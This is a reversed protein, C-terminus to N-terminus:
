RGSGRLSLTVSITADANRGATMQDIVIGDRAEIEGLWRLLPMPRVAGIQVMVRGDGSTEMRETTLGAESARRSVLEVLPVAQSPRGRQEASRIEGTMVRVDGLAQEAADHRAEANARAAGVPRIVGLWAVVVVLLAAMIGVLWQERVSRDRWWPLILAMM